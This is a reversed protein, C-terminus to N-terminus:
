YVINLIYHIIYFMFYLIYFIFYLIFFLYYIFYIINYKIYLIYQLIYIVYYIIFILYYIIYLGYYTICLIDNYINENIWMHMKNMQMTYIKFSICRALCVCMCMYKSSNWLVGVEKRGNTSQCRTSWDDRIWIVSRIKSLCFGFKLHHSTPIAWFGAVRTFGFYSACAPVNVNIGWIQSLQNQDM